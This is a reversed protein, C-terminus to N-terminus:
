PDDYRHVARRVAAVQDQFADSEFVTPDRPRPLDIRFEEAIRGPEDIMVLCRDALFVAEPM